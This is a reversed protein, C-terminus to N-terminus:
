IRMHKHGDILMWLPDKNCQQALTRQHKNALYLAIGASFIGELSNTLYLNVQTSVLKPLVKRLLHRITDVETKFCQNLIIPISKSSNLIFLSKHENSKICFVGNPSIFAKDALDFSIRVM